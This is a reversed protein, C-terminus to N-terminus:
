HLVTTTLTRLVYFFDIFRYIRVLTFDKKYKQTIKLLPSNEQKFIM